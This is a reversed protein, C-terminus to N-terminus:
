KRYEQLIRDRFVESNELYDRFIQIIKKYTFPKGNPRFIYDIEFGDVIPVGHDYCRTGQYEYPGIGNTAISVRSIEVDITFESHKLAIPFNKILM